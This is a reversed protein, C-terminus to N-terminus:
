AALLARRDHASLQPPLGRRRDQDGGRALQSLYAWDEFWRPCASCPPSMAHRDHRQRPRREKPDKGTKNHLDLVRSAFTGIGPATFSCLTELPPLSHFGYESVFRFDLHDVYWSFTKTTGCRGSTRMAPPHRPSPRPECETWLIIRVAQGTPATQTTCPGTAPITEYFIRDFDEWAVTPFRGSWRTM